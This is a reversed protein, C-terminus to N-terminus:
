RISELGERNKEKMVFLYIFGGLWYILRRGGWPPSESRGLGDM